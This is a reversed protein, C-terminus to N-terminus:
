GIELLGLELGRLFFSSFIVSLVFIIFRDITLKDTYKTKGECYQSHDNMRAAYTKRLQEKLYEIESQFCERSLGTLVLYTHAHSYSHHTHTHAHTNVITVWSVPATPYHNACGSAMNYIILNFFFSRLVNPENWPIRSIYHFQPGLKKPSTPAMKKFAFLQWHHHTVQGYEMRLKNENCIALLPNGTVWFMKMGFVVCDESSLM